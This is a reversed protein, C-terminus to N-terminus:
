RVWLEILELKWIAAGAVLVFVAFSGVAVLRRRRVTAAEEAKTVMVPILALVSLSLASVVDDDTKLSSDRYELLVVIALDLGLGMIAGMSIIRPRDPSVPREPLRAGDVIKFQVM